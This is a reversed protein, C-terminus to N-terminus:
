HRLHPEMPRFQLNIYMYPPSLTPWSECLYQNPLSYNLITGHVRVGILSWIWFGCQFALLKPNVWWISIFISVYNRSVDFSPDGKTDYWDMTNITPFYLTFVLLYDFPWVELFGILQFSTFKFSRLLINKSMIFMVDHFLQLFLDILVVFFLCGEFPPFPWGFPPFTILSKIPFYCVLHIWCHVYWWSANWSILYM